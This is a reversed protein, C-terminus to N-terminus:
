SLVTSTDLWLDGDAPSAPATSQASFKGTLGAAGYLMPNAGGNMTPQGAIFDVLGSTSNVKMGFHATGGSDRGGLYLHRAGTDPAVEVAVTTGNDNTKIGVSGASRLKDAELGSGPGDTAADWVQQGNRTFTAATINLTASGTVGATGGSASIRASYDEAGGTSHIDVGSTGAVSTSGVELIANTATFTGSSATLAGSFSATTGSIGGTFTSGSLDAKGTSLSTLSTPVASYWHAGGVISKILTTLYNIFNALTFPGNSSPLATGDNATISELETYAGSVGNEINNMNPASAPTTGSVWTTPSYPM